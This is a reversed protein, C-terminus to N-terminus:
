KLDYLLNEFFFIKLLFYLLYTKRKDFKFALKAVIFKSKCLFISLM